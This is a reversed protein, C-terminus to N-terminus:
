SQVGISLKVAAAPSKDGPAKTAVSILAGLGMGPNNLRADAGQPPPPLATALQDILRRAHDAYNERLPKRRPNPRPPKYTAAKRWGDIIILPRDHIDFEGPEPM